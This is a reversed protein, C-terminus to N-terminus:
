DVRTIFQATPRRVKKLKVLWDGTEDRYGIPMLAVSRLGRARLNLIDDLAKPDSGEM